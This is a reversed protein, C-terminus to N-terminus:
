FIAWSTLSWDFFIILTVSRLFCSGHFWSFKKGLCSVILMSVYIWFVVCSLWCPWNVSLLLWSYCLRCVKGVCLMWSPWIVWFNSAFSVSAVVFWPVISIYLFCFPLFLLSPSLFPNATSAWSVGLFVVHFHIHFHNNIM